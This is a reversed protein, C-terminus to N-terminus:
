PVNASAGNTSVSTESGNASLGSEVARMIRIGTRAAAPRAALLNAYLHEWCDLVSHVSYREAVSERARSGMAQRTNGDTEMLYLMANKLPEPDHSRVLLGTHGHAIIDIAGAVATSVCPLACGSAELLCVPLGECLSPLIFGDAARMWRLLDPQFGPFRVRNEVGLSRAQSWLVEAQSGSGAVVLRANGPLSAFAQLLTPFNKVPELRGAALWLFEDRLKLRARHDAREAPDPKWIETDIGNPVIELRDRSVMRAALWAEAAGNSVATVKDTLWQSRCYGLKRGRTGTGATHITDLVVRVPAALRSWRAMWAAHPLHAHLIEPRQARLWANLRLWGRPDALGKRMELSLFSIGSTRLEAATEGATGSLVIVTVRWGRRALGTALLVVQREAGGIRDLTPLLFAIHTM